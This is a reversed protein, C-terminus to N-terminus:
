KLGSLINNSRSESNREYCQSCLQVANLPVSFPRFHVLSVFPPCRINIVVIPGGGLGGDGDGGQGEEPLRLVVDGGGSVGADKVMIVAPTVDGTSEVEQLIDEITQETDGDAADEASSFITDLLEQNIFVEDDSAEDQPLTQLELIGDDNIQFYIM